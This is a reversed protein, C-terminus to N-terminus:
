DTHTWAPEAVHPAPRRMERPRGAIKSRTPGEGARKGLVRGRLPRAVQNASTEVRYGAIESRPHEKGARKGLVRGRLPRAVQNASTEVHYGAIESRPHKRQHQIVCVQAKEVRARLDRAVKLFGGHPRPHRGLVFGDESLGPWRIAWQRASSGVHYGAIESRPPEKGARKGLVRGRLPRAVQSASTEV